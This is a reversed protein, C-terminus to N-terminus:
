RGGCSGLMQTKKPTGGYKPCLTNGRKRVIQDGATVNFPLTKTTSCRQHNIRTYGVLDTGRCGCMNKCVCCSGYTKTKTVEFTVELCRGIKSNWYDDDNGKWTWGQSCSVIGGGTINSYTADKVHYVKLSDDIMDRFAIAKICLFFQEQNLCFRAQRIRVLTCNGRLIWSNNTLHYDLFHIPIDNVIAPDLCGFNLIGFSPINAFGITIPVDTTDDSVM